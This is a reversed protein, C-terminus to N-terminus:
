KSDGLLKKKLEYKEDFFELIIKIGKVLPTAIIMGIIGFLYGFILLSIMITVPHLDMTKGMILPQLLMNDLQQVLIAVVLTLIGVLPSVSLGVIVCIAGGIWPGIYPIINTLGCLVGFLLPSPLGVLAYGITSVLSVILSIFFTGQIFDRFASNLKHALKLIGSHFKKPVLDLVHKAGDFDILLYFGVVMGLAFTGISSIISTFISISQKPITTTLSIGIQEISNFISNELNSLDIGKNSMKNFVEHIFNSISLILDPVSKIFENIQKMLLPILTKFLLFMIGIFLIFVIVAGIGRKIKKKQLFTVIPDFLWAIIIGIFLPAIVGLIGFLIKSVKLEKFLYVGILIIALIFISFLVKFLKKSLSVVENINEYDLNNKKNKIM